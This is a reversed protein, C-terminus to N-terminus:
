KAAAAPAPRSASVLKLTLNIADAILDDQKGTYAVGFDKRNLNFRAVATHRGEAATGTSTITAPFSIQKTVGRLTLNGSVRHSASDGAAARGLQTVVFRATPFSDVAFFDPSKLHGELKGKWEGTLDLVAIAAMDLVFEGGVVSDGQTLFHASKLKVTGNHRGTVKTGVWAVESAALDLTLTDGTITSEAAATAEAKPAEPAKSCASLLAAAAVAAM